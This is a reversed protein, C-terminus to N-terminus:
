VKRVNSLRKTANVLVTITHRFVIIVCLYKGHMQIKLIGNTFNRITEVNFHNSILYSIEVTCTEELFCATPLSRILKIDPQYERNFTIEVGHFAQSQVDTRNRQRLKLSNKLLKPNTSLSDVQIEIEITKISFGKDFETNSIEFCLNLERSNQNSKIDRVCTNATKYYLTRGKGEVVYVCYEFFLLLFTHIFM